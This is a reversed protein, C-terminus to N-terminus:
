SVCVSNLDTLLDLLRTTENLRSRTDKELERETPLFSSFLHQVHEGTGTSVVM